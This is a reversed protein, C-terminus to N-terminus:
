IPPLTMLLQTTFLKTPILSIIILRSTLPSGRQHRFLFAAATAGLGNNKQPSGPIWPPRPPPYPIIAGSCEWRSGGQSQWGVCSGLGQPVAMELSSVVGTALHTPPRCGDAEQLTPRPLM